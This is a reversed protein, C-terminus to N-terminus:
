RPSVILGKSTVVVWRGEQKRIADVRGLGPVVDGADVEILGLRGEILATGRQVDRLVWGEVIGSPKAPQGAIPQPPTISGTTERGANVDARREFGEIAKTLKAVPEAQTRDIREVREGIRTFQANANRHGAEISTKMAALDVRLQVVQEKLTQVEELGSKAAVVTPAPASRMLLTTSALTGVMAGLSAALVLSAALLPFKHGRSAASDHPGEMPAAAAADATPGSGPIFDAATTPHVEDVRPMDIRPADFSPAEFAALAISPNEITLTETKTQISFAIRPTESSPIDIPRDIESAGVVQVVDIRPPAIRALAMKPTADGSGYDAAPPAEAGAEGSPPTEDNGKIADREAM